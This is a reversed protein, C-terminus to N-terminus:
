NEPIAQEPQSVFVTLVVHGSCEVSVCILDNDIYFVEHSTHLVGTAQPFSCSKDVAMSAASHCQVVGALHDWLVASSELVTM